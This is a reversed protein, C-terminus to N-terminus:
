DVLPPLHLHDEIRDVRKRLLVEERDFYSILVNISNQIKSMDKKMESFDRKLGQFDKKTAFNKADDKTLFNKADEKTLVNKEKLVIEIEERVIKRIQSLDKQDM